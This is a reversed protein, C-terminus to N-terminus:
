CTESSSKFVSTGDCSESSGIMSAAPNVRRRRLRKDSDNLAINPSSTGSDENVERTAQRDTRSELAAAAAPQKQSDISGTTTARRNLGLPRSHHKQAEAKELNMQRLREQIKLTNLRRTIDKMQKRNQIILLNVAALAQSLPSTLYIVFHIMCTPILYLIYGVGHDKIDKSALEFLDAGQQFADFAQQLAVTDLKNGTGATNNM